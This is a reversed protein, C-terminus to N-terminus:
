QVLHEGTHTNKLFHLITEYFRFLSFTKSNQKGILASFTRKKEERRIKNLNTSLKSLDRRLCVIM